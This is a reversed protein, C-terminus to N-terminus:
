DKSEKGSSNSSVLLRVFDGLLKNNQESTKKMEDRYQQITKQFELTKEAVSSEFDKQITTINTQLEELQKNSAFSLKKIEDDAQDNLSKIKKAAQKEINGSNEKAKISFDEMKDLYDRGQKQMEDVKFISYISFILFVIMLIGAWLSLVTFDHQLKNYQLELLSLSEKQKEEVIDIVVQDLSITSDKTITLSKLYKNTLNDYFEKQVEIVKNQSGRYNLHFLVFIAIICITCVIISILFKGKYLRLRKKDIYHSCNESCKASPNDEQKATEQKPNEKETM